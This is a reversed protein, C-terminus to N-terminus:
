PTQRQQLRQHSRDCFPKQASGGCRCLVAGNGALVTKRDAGELTLTGELHLPGRPEPRIRLKADPVDSDALPTGVHIAGDDHFGTVAHSGDCFPKNESRGCRCLSVRFDSLRLEGAEDFVELNGRLHLPGHRTVVVTNVSPAVEAPGGDARDFHLAGTPCLQVVHAVRDASAQGAEVWPRRGPAFVKPLNMVCAAAHTCRSRSWTVRIENASFEHLRDGRAVGLPPDTGAPAMPPAGPDREESM